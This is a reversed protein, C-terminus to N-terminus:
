PKAAPAQYITIIRARQSSTGKPHNLKRVRVIVTGDLGLKRLYNRIARARAKALKRSVSPYKSSTSALSTIVTQQVSGATMSRVFSRLTLRATPTLRASNPLFYVRSTSVATRGLIVGISLSRVEGTKSAGNFQLTRGGSAMGRPVPVQGLVTGDTGVTVTGLLVSQPLLWVSLQSGPEYGFGSVSVYQGDAIVLSDGQTLRVPAGSTTVASLRLGFDDDSAYLGDRRDTPVITLPQPIGGVLLMSGAPTLSPLAGDPMPVPKIEQVAPAPPPVPASTPTPVPTPAPTPTGSSTFVLAVTSGSKGDAASGVGSAAATFVVGPEAASYTLGSFTLGNSGVLLTLPTAGGLSGTGSSRALTVTATGGSNNVANGFSDVLLVSVSFPQGAVLPSSATVELASASGPIGSATFTLPSGTLGVSSATVSNSGAVTGVTWSTARAIGLADTPALAGTISGGGSAAAFTVNVGSVPNGYADVVAVAPPVSVATGVITSQGNGASISMSSAAGSSVAVSLRSAGAASISGDTAAVIATQVSVLTMSATAVGASFTVSTATGFATGGISPNIANPSVSAGSFTLSKVGAYSTATNGSADKATITITQSSGANQTASGTIM